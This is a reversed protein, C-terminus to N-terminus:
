HKFKKRFHRLGLTASGIIFLTSSIPEPAIATSYNLVAAPGYRNGNVQEVGFDVSISNNYPTYVSIVIPDNTEELTYNALITGSTEDTVTLWAYNVGSLEYTFLFPALTGLYTGLFEARGVGREDAHNQHSFVTMDSSTISSSGSTPNSPEPTSKSISIPLPPGYAYSEFSGYCSAETNGDYSACAYATYNETIWPVAQAFVAVPLLLLMIVITSIASIRKFKNKKM